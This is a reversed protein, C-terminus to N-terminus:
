FTWIEELQSLEEYYTLRLMQLESFAYRGEGTLVIARVSKDKGLEKMTANFENGIDVTLANLKAPNNFKVVRVGTDSGAANTHKSVLILKNSTSSMKRAFTGFAKKSFVRYSVLIHNASLM